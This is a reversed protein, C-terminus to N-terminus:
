GQCLGAKGLTQNLGNVGLVALEQCCIENVTPEDISASKDAIKAFIGRAVELARVTAQLDTYMDQEVKSTMSEVGLVAAYKKM